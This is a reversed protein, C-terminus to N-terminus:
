QPLYAFEPALKSVGLGSIKEVKIQTAIREKLTDIHSIVGIMKGAANLNDLADLAVELTDNDLTGFGEDLFLSDIQTKASVLDSLALALALSVLFSEGGSLTKTDRTLDAQWTDVVELALSENAQRSLQYRGHLRMLQKNALHVLYELTLSQAFRRFKAGDASGILGNLHSIDNLALQQREIDAMLSTQEQRRKADQTLEFALQALEIQMAKLASEQSALGAQLEALSINSDSLTPLAALQTQYEKALAAQQQAQAKFDDALASIRAFDEAPMNAAIFAAEDSFESDALASQWQEIAQTFQTQVDQQQQILLQHQGQVHQQANAAQNYASEVTQQRATLEAEARAISHQEQEVTNDGLLTILQAQLQSVQQALATTEQSLETLQQNEALQQQQASILSKELSQIDAQAQESAKAQQQYENIQQELQVLWNAFQAVEPASLQLEAAQATIQQWLAQAQKSASALQKLLKEHEAQQHAAQENAVAQQQTLQAIHQEVDALQKQQASEQETMEMLATQCQMVQSIQQQINAQEADIQAIPWIEQANITLPQCAGQWQQNLSAIQQEFAVLQHEIETLLSQQHNCQENLEIGQKTLQEVLPKQTALQAEESSVTLAQYEAIAPHETAGCLPCANGPQLEARYDALQKITQQQSVVKELLNLTHKAQKFEARKEGLLTEQHKLTQKLETQAQQKELLQQHTQAFQQAILGLENLGQQHQQLQLLHTQLDAESALCGGAIQIVQLQRARQQQIELQAKELAQKTIAHEALAQECHQQETQSSAQQAALVKIAQEAALKDNNLAQWHSFDSQWKGVYSPLAQVYQNNALYDVITQYAQQQGALESQQNAIANAINNLSAQKHEAIAQKEGFLTQSHQLSQRAPLIQENLKTNRAKLDAQQQGAQAQWQNLATTQESLEQDAATLQATTAALQQELSESQQQIQQKAAYKEQIAIAPKANDLADLENQHTQQREALAAQNASLAQQKDLLTARQTAIQIDKQLTEVQKAHGSEQEVLTQQKAQLAQVQEDSLLEVGDLKAKLLALSQESAKAEQFVAKSIDGYIDSGTLEELLEARDNASANLFAAFQGQSLMMSKTFRGFDLGTLQAVQQRVAQLKEALIDGGLTALEAKAPQLKGDPSNKARRQSWFARYGQGKVEFEVEALCSATHRTMLQNNKDSINLRPTQHYLALCIADLITTKGAGTPGTIAFLGNGAFPEESFDIFWHGKLSNLNEFRLSLIRM